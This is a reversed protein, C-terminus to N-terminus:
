YYYYTQNSKSLRLKPWLLSQKATRFFYICNLIAIPSTSSMCSCKRLCECKPFALVFYSFFCCFFTLLFSHSHFCTFPVGFSIYILPRIIARAYRGEPTAVGRLLPHIVYSVSVDLGDVVLYM